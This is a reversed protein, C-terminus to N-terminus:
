ATAHFSLVGSHVQANSPSWTSGPGSSTWGPAGTEFGETALATAVTGLPCSGAPATTTFSFVTSYSSLGCGNVARVRWYHTTNPTLPSPPTYTPAALETADVVVNTFAADLAIQIEYTAAQAAPDWTFLPQVPQNFAGNPPSTLVPDAPLADSVNLTLDVQHTHVGD